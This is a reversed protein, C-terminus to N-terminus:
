LWGRSFSGGHAPWGPLHSIDDALGATSEHVPIRSEEGPVLYLHQPGDLAAARGRETSVAVLTIVAAMLGDRVVGTTVTVTGLTLGVGTVFPQGGALLLQQRDVVVVQDEAQGVCSNREDPLVLLHQELEQELNARLRQQLHSGIRFM